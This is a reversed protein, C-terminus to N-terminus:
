EAELIKINYFMKKARRKKFFWFKRIMIKQMHNMQEIITTKIDQFLINGFSM